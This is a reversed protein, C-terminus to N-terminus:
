GASDPFKAKLDAKIRESRAEGKLGDAAFYIEAVQNQV